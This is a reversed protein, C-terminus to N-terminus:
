CDPPSHISRHAAFGSSGSQVRSRIPARAASERAAAIKAGLDQVSKIQAKNFDITVTNNRVGLCLKPANDDEHEVYVHDIERFAFVKQRIFTGDPKQTGLRVEGAKYDIQVSNRPLRKARHKVFFAFALLLALLGAETWLGNSEPFLLFGALIPLVYITALGMM